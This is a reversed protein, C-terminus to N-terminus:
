PGTPKLELVRWDAPWKPDEFQVLLGTYARDVMQYEPRGVAVAHVGRVGRFRRVLMRSPPANQALLRRPFDPASGTPTGALLLFAAHAADASMAEALLASIEASGRTTGKKGQPPVWSGGNWQLGQLAALAQGWAAADVTELQGFGADPLEVFLEPGEPQGPASRLWARERVVVGLRPFRTADAPPPACWAALAAEEPDARLALWVFAMGLLVVASATLLWTRSRRHTADGLGSLQLRGPPAGDAAQAAQTALTNLKGALEARQRARREEVTM